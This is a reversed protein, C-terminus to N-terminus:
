DSDGGSSNSEDDDGEEEWECDVDDYDIDEGDDEADDGEFQEEDDWKELISDFASDSMKSKLAWEPLGNFISLGDKLLKRHLGRFKFDDGLIRRIVVVFVSEKNTESSHASEDAEASLMDPDVEKADDQAKTSVSPSSLAYERSRYMSVVFKYDRKVSLSTARSTEMKSITCTM